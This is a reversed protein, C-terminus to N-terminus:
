KELQFTLYKLSLYIHIPITTNPKYIFVLARQYIAQYLM